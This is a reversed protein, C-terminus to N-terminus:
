AKKIQLLYDICKQLTGVPLSKYSISEDTYTSSLGVVQLQWDDTYPIKDLASYGTRTSISYKLHKIEIFLEVWHQNANEPTIAPYIRNCATELGHAMLIEYTTQHLEEALVKSSYYLIEKETSM